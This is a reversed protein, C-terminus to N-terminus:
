QDDLCQSSKSNSSNSSTHTCTPITNSPHVIDIHHYTGYRYDSHCQTHSPSVQGQTRPTWRPAIHDSITHHCNHIHRHTHGCNHIHYTQTSLSRQCPSHCLHSIILRYDDITLAWSVPIRTTVTDLQIATCHNIFFKSISGLLKFIFVLSHFTIPIWFRPLPLPIHIATFTYPCVCVGRMVVSISYTHQLTYAFAKNISIVFVMFLPTFAWWLIIYDYMDNSTSMKHM